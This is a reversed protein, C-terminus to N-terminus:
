GRNAWSSFLSRASKSHLSITTISSSCTLSHYAHTYLLYYLRFQSECQLCLEMYGGRWGLGKRSRAAEVHCREQIWVAIYVNRGARGVVIFCGVCPSRESGLAFCPPFVRSVQHWASKVNLAMVIVISYMIKWDVQLAQEENERKMFPGFVNSQDFNNCKYVIERYYRGSAYSLTDIEYKSLGHAHIYYSLNALEADHPIVLRDPTQEPSPTPSSSTGEATGNTADHMSASSSPYQSSPGPFNELASPPSQSQMHTDLHGSGALASNARANEAHAEAEESEDEVSQSVLVQGGVAVLM